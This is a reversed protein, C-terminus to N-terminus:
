LLLIQTCFGFKSVTCIAELCWSHTLWLSAEFIYQSFGEMYLALYLLYKSIPM